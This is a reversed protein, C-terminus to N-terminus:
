HVSQFSQAEIRPGCSRLAIWEGVARVKGQQGLDVEIPTEARREDRRERALWFALPDTGELRAIAEVENPDVLTPGGLAQRELAHSISELAEDTVVAAFLM